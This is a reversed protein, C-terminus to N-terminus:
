LESMYARLTRVAARVQTLIASASVPAAGVGDRAALNAALAHARAGAAAALDPAMGASMLAGILGSLVDGAGATSAWSGGADNVFAHGDPRAILTARGKLLVHVQWDAALARVAAVRDPEPRSGTLRAFEGAHPTLLTPAPRNRVPSPNQALLTLGDADVLVPLDTALVERLTRAAAEDTGGGPGVVWAQARGAAAFSPAAVVEPYRALVADAATGAYRVMGSTAAVAAGTCLVGAGPYTASGAIIGVVGQSYKDDDAGPVPWIAGIEAPEAAVLEATPLDLGIDVLEVREGP